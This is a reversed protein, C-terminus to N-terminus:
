PAPRVQGRRAPLVHGLLHLRAFASQRCFHPSFWKHAPYVPSNQQVIFRHITFFPLQQKPPERKINIRDNERKWINSRINKSIQPVKAAGGDYIIRDVCHRLPAGCCVVYGLCGAYHCVSTIFINNQGALQKTKAWIM